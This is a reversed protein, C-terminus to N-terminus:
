ESALRDNDDLNLVTPGFLNIPMLNSEICCYDTGILTVLQGYYADSHRYITMNYLKQKKKKEKRFLGFGLENQLILYVNFGVASWKTIRVINM